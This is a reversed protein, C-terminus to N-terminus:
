SIVIEIGITHHIQYGGFRKDHEASQTQGQSDTARSMLIRVGRETPVQWRFKWRRWAFSSPPDLFTARSWTCGGDDSFEVQQIEAEGGWAAGFVEYSEGAGVSERMQPRAIASKLGMTSLARRVPNGDISDWYAYDTTQWYGSFPERVVRIGTLWKVSAMGYHGPVVARVPFGHDRPITEGNMLYALIVDHAKDVTISRAYRTEGPPAPKNRPAGKDAAEFVVECAAPDLDAKELLLSLPVGTWEATGVAGQQWQAGDVQPALFVRGNGACEITVPRTVTPLSLLEDYNLSLARRVSGEVNLRYGDLDLRPAAFHSRVYFLENPTLFDSLRAFPFELNLPERERIILGAAREVGALKQLM